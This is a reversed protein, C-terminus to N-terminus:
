LNIEDDWQNRYNFRNWALNELHLIYEPDEVIPKVYNLKPGRCGCSMCYIYLYTNTYHNEMSSDTYHNDDVYKIKCMGDCWPCGEQKIKGFVFHFYIDDIKMMGYENELVCYNELSNYEYIKKLSKIRNLDEM